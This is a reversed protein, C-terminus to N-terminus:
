LDRFRYNEFEVDMFDTRIGGFGSDILAGGGYKSGDDVASAVLKWVGSWDKDMYLNISVSGNAGNVVESRLGIWKNKPLLNPNSTKNYTGPFVNKVEAMTYYVGKIKKKIIASGDVRVGTYYLNAGDIYRNFLLLGNSENRNSSSSLNNARIVFYAEQRANQWKSRTVLRFINQPHYGNDTDTPNNTSYLARWPDNSPLSSQVTAGRGVTSMSMYGGSNVWWYPSSSLSSNSTEILKGVTNFNYLYPSTVVGPDVALLSKPAVALVLLLCLSVLVYIKNNKM